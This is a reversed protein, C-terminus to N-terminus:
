EGPADEEVSDSDEMYVLVDSPLTGEATELNHILKMVDTDELTKIRCALDSIESLRLKGMKLYDPYPILCTTGFLCNLAKEILAYDEKTIFGAYDSYVFDKIFVLILLKSIEAYRCYGLKELINVYRMLAGFVMEGM